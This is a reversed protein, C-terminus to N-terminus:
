IEDWCDECLSWEVALQIITEKYVMRECRTCESLDEDVM